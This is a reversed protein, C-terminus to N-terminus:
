AQIVSPLQLYKSRILKKYKKVAGEYNGEQQAALAAQYKEHSKAELVEEREVEEQEVESGEENIAVFRLKHYFVVNAFM